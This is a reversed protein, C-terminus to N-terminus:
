APDRAEFATIETLDRQGPELRTPKVPAAYSGRKNKIENLVHGSAPRQRHHQEASGAFSRPRFTDPAPRKPM